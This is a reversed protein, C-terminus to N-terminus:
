PADRGRFPGHGGALQLHAEYLRIEEWVAMRVAPELPLFKAHGVPVEGIIWVEFLIAALSLIEELREGRTIGGRQVSQPLSMRM